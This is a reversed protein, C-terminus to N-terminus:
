SFLYQTKLIIIGLFLIYATSYFHHKQILIHLLKDEHLFFIGKPLRPLLLIKSPKIDTLQLDILETEVLEKSDALLIQFGDM